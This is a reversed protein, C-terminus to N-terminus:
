LKKSEQKIGRHDRNMAEPQRSLLRAPRYRVAFADKRLRAHRQSRTQVARRPRKKALLLPSQRRRAVTHHVYGRQRSHRDAPPRRESRGSRSPPHRLWG